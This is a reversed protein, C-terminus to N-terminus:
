KAKDVIVRIAAVKNEWSEERVRESIAAHDERAVQRDLADLWAATGTCTLVDDGYNRLEPVDSAVVPLGAALLEKTKVPNVSEMRPNSMDYPIIAVDFARCYDHLVGHERRGLLHVNPLAELAAVDVYTEGILVFSWEQRATAIAEVVAFDVWSHLNGYFGIIPKRLGAVDEPVPQAKDLAQAFRSYEVGHPLYRVPPVSNLTRLESNPTGSEPNQPIQQANPTPQQNNPTKEMEMEADEAEEQEFGIESLKKQLFRSTVFVADAHAVLEQEKVNMWAGDLNQFQGWDDACYYVIKDRCDNQGFDNQWIGASVSFDNQRGAARPLLDVANPVFCWYETFQFDSIPFQFNSPEVHGENGKSGGQEFRLLARSVGSEVGWKGREVGRQERRVYWAFVKRNIWKAFSSEAKPILIPKLVYLHNEKWEARKLGSLVRGVIRRLDKGLAASPKRTGISSVWLVPMTKAMERLIHTTCTPVDDWDKTFAVIM